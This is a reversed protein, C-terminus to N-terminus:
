RIGEKELIKKLKKISSNYSWLVTGLPLSMMEAIERHKLGNIIHLIVIGADQKNLERVIIDYVTTDALEDTLVGSEKEFDSFDTLCERKRKEIDNLALNKGIQLIWATVNTGLKYSQANKRVRIYTEQMLDEATMADKVYSYLFSYLGKKTQEYLKVFAIEDGNQVEAMLNDLEKKDM